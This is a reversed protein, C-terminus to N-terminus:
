GASKAMPDNRKDKQLYRGLLFALASADQIRVHFVRGMGTAALRRTRQLVAQDFQQHQGLNLAFRDKM